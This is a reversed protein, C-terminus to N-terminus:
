LIVSVSETVYNSPFTGFRGNIKGKWWDGDKELLTIRDNKKFSLDGTEQGEFNYLAICSGLVTGSAAATGGEREGGGGGGKATTSAAAAVGSEIDYIKPRFITLDQIKAGLVEYRADSWNVLKDISQPLEYSSKRLEAIMKYCFILHLLYADVTALEIVKQMLQIFGPLERKLLENLNDYKVKYEALKRELTFIQNSQKLSLQEMGQEQKVILSDHENYIKDYDLLAYQRDRIKKFVNKLITSSLTELRKMSGNVVADIEGSMDIKQMLHKYKIMNAWLDYADNMTESDKKFNSYPDILNHFGESVGISEQVVEGMSECFLKLSELVKKLADDQQKVVFELANFEEDVTYSGGAFKIKQKLFQPTRKIKNWDFQTPKLKEDVLKWKKSVQTTLKNIENNM